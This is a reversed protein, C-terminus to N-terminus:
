GRLVFRRCRHAGAGGAAPILKVGHWQGGGYATVDAASLTAAVMLQGNYFGGVNAGRAVVRLRNWVDFQHSMAASTALLTAGGSAYKYLRCVSNEAVFVLFTGASVQRFVIGAASGAGAATLLDAEIDVDTVGAAFVRAITFVGQASPRLTGDVVSLATSGGNNVVGTWPDAAPGDLQDFRTALVVEELGAAVDTHLDPIAGFPTGAGPAAAAALFLRATGPSVGPSTREEAFAVLHQGDALPANSSYLMWGGPYCNPHVMRAPTWTVGGDTSTRIRAHGTGLERYICALQRDDVWFAHPKGTGGFRAGAATWTAGHDTSTATGISDITGWRFAAIVAGNLAALVPEQYARGDAVGDKIRTLTWTAGRDSSRAVYASDYTDTANTRGYVALLLTGDALDLIVDTTAAYGLDDIRTEDSWTEGHDTSARM